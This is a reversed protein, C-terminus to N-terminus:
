STSRSLMLRWTDSAYRLKENLKSDSIGKRNGDSHDNLDTLPPGNGPRNAQQNIYKGENPSATGPMKLPGTFFGKTEVNEFGPPPGAYVILEQGLDQSTSESAFIKLKMHSQDDKKKFNQQIAPMGNKENKPQLASKGTRKSERQIRSDKLESRRM